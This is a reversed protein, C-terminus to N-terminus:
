KWGIARLHGAGLYPELAAFLKDALPNPSIFVGGGVFGKTETRGRLVTMVELETGESGRPTVLVVFLSVVEVSKDFEILSAVDSGKVAKVNSVVMGAKADASSVGYGVDALALRVAQVTEPISTSYVQHDLGAHAVPKAQGVSCLLMVPIFGLTRLKMEGGGQDGRRSSGTDQGSSVGM